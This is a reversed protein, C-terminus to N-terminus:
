KRDIEYIRFDVDEPLPKFSVELKYSIIIIKLSSSSVKEKQCVYKTKDNEM